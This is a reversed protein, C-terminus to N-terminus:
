SMFYVLSCGSSAVYDIIKDESGKRPSFVTLSEGNEVSHVEARLTVHQLM